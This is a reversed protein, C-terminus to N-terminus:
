IPADEALDVLEDVSLTTEDRESDALEMLVSAAKFQVDYIRGIADLLDAPLALMPIIPRDFEARLNDITFLDLPDAMAVILEGGREGIPLIMKERTVDEP